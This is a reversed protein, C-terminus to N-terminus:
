AGALQFVRSTLTKGGLETGITGARAFRQQLLQEADDHLARLAGRSWKLRASCDQSIERVLRSFTAHPISLAPDRRRLKAMGAPAGAGEGV